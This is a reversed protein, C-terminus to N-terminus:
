SPRERCGMALVTAKPVVRFVGRDPNMVWLAGDSEMRFVMTNTLFTVGAEHARRIWRHMYEPGTLEEKFTHLGFGPHICQQLIGGLDWDRELVLVDGAGAEKAGIGAAIGAPGAGIIAIDVHMDTM